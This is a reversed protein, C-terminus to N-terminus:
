AVRHLLSVKGGGYLLTLNDFKCNFPCGPFEAYMFLAKVSHGKDM